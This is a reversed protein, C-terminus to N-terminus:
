LCNVWETTGDDFTQLKWIPLTSKIEEVLAGCAALAAGRHAAGVVVGLATEGIGLHGVRHVASIRVGEFQGAVTSTIQALILDADPHAEYELSIVTRGHDHNRVRGIFNVSAGIEDTLVTTELDAMVIPESTIQTFSIPAALQENSM